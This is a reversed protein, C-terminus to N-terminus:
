SHKETSLKDSKECKILINEPKLPVQPPRGQVIDEFKDTLSQIFVLQMMKSVGKMRPHILRADLITKWRASTMKSSTSRSFHKKYEGWNTHAICLKYDILTLWIVLGWSSDWNFFLCPNARSDECKMDNMVMVVKDCYYEDTKQDWTYM